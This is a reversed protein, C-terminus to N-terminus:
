IGPILISANLLWWIISDIIKIGIFPAVMGGIGYISLFHRALKTANINRYPIGRIAIPLLLLITLSSFILSSLIATHPTHLQMINLAQLEPYFHMFIAPIITFHKAIDSMISFTTICGKTMNIQRGVEIIEIIKMPDDTLDIANAGSKADLLGSHMVLGLNAYGVAAADNAGDGVMAVIKSKEQLDKVLKLKYQSNAECIFDDIGIANAIGRAAYYNDGTVLITKVELVRLRALRSSIGPKLKDELKIVGLVNGNDVVVLSSIGQNGLLQVLKYIDNPIQRGYKKLYGEIMGVGGKVIERQGMRCGSIPSDITYTIQEYDDQPLKNYQHKLGQTEDILKLISRGEPTKDQLTALEVVDVLHNQEVGSAAIFASATRNGDTITGTKDFIVVEIDGAVELVKNDLIMVNREFLRQLGSISITSTLGVIATPLLCILMALLSIISFDINMAYGIVAISAVSMIAIAAISLLFYWLAIELQSKTREKNQLISQVAEMMNDKIDEKAEIIISDSLVISGGLATNQGPAMSRIVASSEGTISSENVSAIGLVVTGDCPITQGAKIILRDGVAIDSAMINQIAGDPAIKDVMMQSKSAKHASAFAYSRNEALAEAFNAFFVTMIIWLFIWVYFWNPAIYGQFADLAENFFLFHIPIALTIIVASLWVLMMIPNEVYTKPHFKKLACRLSQYFLEKDMFPPISSM